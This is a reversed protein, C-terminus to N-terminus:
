TNRYNIRLVTTRGQAQIGASKLSFRTAGRRGYIRQADDYLMLVANTAPDVMQVVLKIWAAQTFDHGEDILVARYQGCPIFGRDVGDIVRQPLADFFGEGQAPIPQGYAVLQQRCWQHFPRVSVRDSLGRAVMRSHLQLALPRNYCLILVPREASATEALHEARVGLIMTKGSGAVGHIVRHGDGLSRALQEQQLDMVRLLDPVSSPDDWGTDGCAPVDIRVEPFLGWRVRDIQPLTLVGRMLTPFMDWLRSQLAEPEVSELMEDKCLVRHPEIASALGASDFEARNINPFVVGYSWPFCVEGQRRGETWVLQLDRRLLDVVAEAYHRAQEFPSQVCKEEGGVLITWRGRSACRVTRLSWDKVELILLGRQPHLIIFDPHLQQPGVPVDYWLLYDADLKHELREALRREGSTMRGVCAGLAPILAAM